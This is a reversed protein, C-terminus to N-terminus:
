PGQDIPQPGLRPFNPERLALVVGCQRDDRHRGVRPFVPILCTQGAHPVEESGELGVRSARLGAVARVITLVSFNRESPPPRSPIADATDTSVNHCNRNGAAISECRDLRAGAAWKTDVDVAGRRPVVFFMCLLDARCPLCWDNRFFPWM